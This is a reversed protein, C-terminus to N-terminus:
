WDNISPPTQLPLIKRGKIFFQISNDKGRVATVFTDPVDYMSCLARRTEEMDKDTIEAFCFQKSATWKFVHDTVNPSYKGFM